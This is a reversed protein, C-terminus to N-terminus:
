WFKTTKFKSIVGCKMCTCMGSKLRFGYHSITNGLAWQKQNPTLPRLQGSLKMIEQQKRNRPKM